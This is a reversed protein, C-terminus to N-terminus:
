ILTKYISRGYAQGPYSNAFRKGSPYPNKTLYPKHYNTILMITKKISDAIKKAADKLKLKRLEQVVSIRIFKPIVFVFIECREAPLLRPQDLCILLIGSNDVEAHDIQCVRDNYVDAPINTPHKLELILNGVRHEALLEIVFLALATGQLRNRTANRQRQLFKTKERSRRTGTISQLLMM